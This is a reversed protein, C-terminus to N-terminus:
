KNLENNVTWKSKFNDSSISMFLSDISQNVNIYYINLCPKFAKYLLYLCLSSRVDGLGKM